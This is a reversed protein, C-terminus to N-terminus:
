PGKNDNIHFDDATIMYHEEHMILSWDYLGSQYFRIPSFFMGKLRVYLLGPHINKEAKANRGRM